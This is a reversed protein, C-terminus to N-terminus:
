PDPYNARIAWGDSPSLHHKTGLTELDNRDFGPHITYKSRHAEELIEKKLMDDKPVVVRNRYKLVGDPSFNFDSIEGKKVKEGWKGVMSDEKQAEKVRELLTSIVKVNGFVVKHSGLCPKWECVSELLDWEKIMLGAVQAKRSLADAVVNAKRPHYNITCDYDELFEMWRRQRM